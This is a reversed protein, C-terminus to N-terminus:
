KTNNMAALFNSMITSLLRKQDSDCVSVARPVSINYTLMSHFVNYEEETEFTVTLTKPTFVPQTTTFIM